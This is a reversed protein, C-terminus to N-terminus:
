SEPLSQLMSMFLSLVASCHTLCKANKYFLRVEAAADPMEIRNVRQCM